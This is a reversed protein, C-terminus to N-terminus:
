PTVAFLHECLKNKCAGAGKCTKPFRKGAARKTMSKYEQRLTRNGDQAKKTEELAKLQDIHAVLKHSM